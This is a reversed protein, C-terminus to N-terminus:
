LAAPRRDPDPQHHWLTRAHVTSSWGEVRLHRGVEQV